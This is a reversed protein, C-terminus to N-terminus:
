TTALAAQQPDMDALKFLAPLTQAYPLLLLWYAFAIWLGNWAYASGREPKGAGMNQSVYTNVVTFMGMAISQPVWAALGGNGQAGVYEPGLHSVLWKDVFQMLTYSTMTAVTPGAIKFLELLPHQPKELVALAPM